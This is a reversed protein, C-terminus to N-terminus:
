PPPPYYLYAFQRPFFYSLVVAPVDEWWKYRIEIQSPRKTSKRGDTQRDKNDEEELHYRSTLLILPDRMHQRQESYSMSDRVLRLVDKIGNNLLNHVHYRDVVIIATPLVRQVAGLYPPWM